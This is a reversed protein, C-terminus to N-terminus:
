VLSGVTEDLLYFLEAFHFGETLSNSVVLENVNSDIPRIFWKDIKSRDHAGGFFRVDYKDGVIGM